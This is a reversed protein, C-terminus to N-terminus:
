HFLNTVWLFGDAYLLLFSGVLAIGGGMVSLAYFMVFVIMWIALAMFLTTLAPGFVFMTLAQTLRAGRRRPGEHQQQYASLAMLAGLTVYIATTILRIHIEPSLFLLPLGLVESWFEGSKAFFFSQGILFINWTWLLLNVSLM